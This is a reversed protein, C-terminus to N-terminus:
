IRGAQLSTQKPPSLTISEGEVYDKGTRGDEGRERQCTPSKGLRVGKKLVRESSDEGNSKKEGGGM